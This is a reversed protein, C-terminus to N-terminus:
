KERVRNPDTGHLKIRLASSAGAKQKEAVAKKPKKAERGSRKQGKAM